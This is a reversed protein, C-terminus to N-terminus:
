RPFGSDLSMVDRNGFHAAIARILCDGLQRKKGSKPVRQAIRRAETWVQPPIRGKDLIKFEGLYARYRKLEDASQAGVVFEIYVPTVILNTNHNDILRQAWIRAEKESLSDRSPIQNWHAVLCSTDLVRDAM